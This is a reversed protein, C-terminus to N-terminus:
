RADAAASVPTRRNLLLSRDLFSGAIKGSTKKIWILVLPSGGTKSSFRGCLGFIEEIADTKRERIVGACTNREGFKTSSNITM